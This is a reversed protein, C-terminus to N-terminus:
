IFESKRGKLASAIVQMQEKHHVKEFGVAPTARRSRGFYLLLQTTKKDKNIIQTIDQQIYQYAGMNCPEEQVWAFVSANSYRAVAQSLKEIHLPYLQEIRVIGVTQALQKFEETELADFLDLAIKGTCFLVREVSEPKTIRADDLIEEFKSQALAELTSFTRRSRLFGKPSMIVLPKRFNRKVQRRLVHFIQNSHTLYCVQMNGQACLQLFRELRASSHEAGQGEMGHPLLLVLGQQQCWKTEGSAIFQDIIVQAGNAFDGFQGEWLTLTNVAVTAYGYEYGMTAEESLLSNVIEVKSTSNITKLPSFEDETETDIFVAHRHSFTGRQTDEGTLRLSFGDDIVSAYAMMEAMGWDVPRKGELMNKRGAIVLQEIKPHIHFTQPYETLKAALSKLKETPVTTDVPTLIDQESAHALKGADRAPKFQTVKRKETKIKDYVVNMETHFSQYISKLEPETFRNQATLQRAYNEYPAPKEKILKYLVPQTFSPEDGENHGFRRFCLIDVYIDKKFEVHYKAALTMINHVAEPDDGNVHFVPSDTVRAVSTCYVSSRSDRPNTTFGIQNNAVVHVVGGVKYGNLAMLQATEYVIGQGSIAADGHFLLAAMKSTDSQYYMTQIARTEGIVVPDVYELHSPNCSLGVRVSHGQRTTHVSDYGNHYKVDGDGCFNTDPEGEFEAFLDALPKGVLNVLFNLRGRHAIGIRFEQTGLGALADMYSEAAVIQADAGEISFRKKGIYKTAITKELADARALETFIQKQTQPLISQSKLNIFERYLWDKEDSCSVHEIEIGITGCFLRELQKILESLALPQNLGILLGAHTIRNLDTEHLGYSAINFIDSKVSTACSMVRKKLIANDTLPNLNAHFHGCTKYNQVLKAASMEFAIDQTSEGRGTGLKAGDFFGNFYARWETPVSAPNSQFRSFMDEVYAANVSYINEFNQSVSNM